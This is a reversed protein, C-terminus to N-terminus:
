YLMAFTVSILPCYIRVMPTVKNKLQAHNERSEKDRLRADSLADLLKCSDPLTALTIPYRELWDQVTQFASDAEPTQNTGANAAVLLAYDAFQLFSPPTNLVIDHKTPYQLDCNM